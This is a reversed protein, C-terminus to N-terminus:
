KIHKCNIAKVQINSKKLWEPESIQNQTDFELEEVNPLIRLPALHETTLQRVRTFSIKRLHTLLNLSKYDVASGLIFNLESLQDLDKLFEFKKVTMRSFTLKQLEKLAQTSEIHKIKDFLFLEKLKPQKAISKISIGNGGIALRELDLHENIEELLDNKGLDVSLSKLNPFKSLLKLDTTPGNDSLTIRLTEKSSTILRENILATTYDSMEFSRAFQVQNFREARLILDCDGDTLNSYINLVGGITLIFNDSYATTTAKIAPSGNIIEQTTSEM